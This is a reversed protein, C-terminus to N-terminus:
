EDTASPRGYRINEMISRHFLSVDQPVVAIAERLSDQTVRSIDQGDILIRGANTEYFRQLLAFLTSKGTGSRGLLGVRQGSEVAITFNEFVQAGDSYGFSVDEFALRAGNRVLPVAEP